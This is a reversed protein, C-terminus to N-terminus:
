TLPLIIHSKINTCRERPEGSNRYEVLALAGSVGPQDLVNRQDPVPTRKSRNGKGTLSYSHLLRIIQNIYVRRTCRPFSRRRGSREFRVVCVCYFKLRLNNKCKQTPAKQTFASAHGYIPGSGEELFLGCGAGADTEMVWVVVVVVAPLRREPGGSARIEM